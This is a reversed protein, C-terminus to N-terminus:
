WKRASDEELAELVTSLVFCNYDRVTVYGPVIPKSSNSFCCVEVRLSPWAISNSIPLIPIIFPNGMFTQCLYLPSAGGIVTEWAPNGNVRSPQLPENVISTRCVIRDKITNQILVHTRVLTSLWLIFMVLWRGPIRNGSVM